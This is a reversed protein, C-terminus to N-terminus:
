KERDLIMPQNFIKIVSKNKRDYKQLRPNRDWLLKCFYFVTAHAIDNLQDDLMSQRM